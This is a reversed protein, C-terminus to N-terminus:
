GPYLEYGAKTMMEVIKPQAANMAERATMKNTLVKQLYDSMTTMVEMYPTVPALYALGTELGKMHGPFWKFVKILEPDRLVSYRATGAAAVDLVIRKRTNEESTAWVIVKYALEPVKSDKNIAYCSGGLANSEQTGKPWSQYQNKGAVSSKSPDELENGLEDLWLTTAAKGAKYALFADSYGLGLASPSNTKYLAYFNELAKIMNDSTLNVNFQEKERSVTEIYTVDYAVAYRAFHDAVDYPYTYAGAYGYMNPPKKLAKAAAVWEDVTTPYSINNEDFVDARIALTQPCPTFPLAMQKGKWTLLELSNPVFDDINLREENVVNPDNMFGDLPLKNDIYPRFYDYFVPIVDYAGAHTEADTTTKQVYDDWGTALVNVKAGTEAEFEPVLKELAYGAPQAYVIATL